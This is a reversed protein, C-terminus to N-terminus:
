AQQDILSEECQFGFSERAFRRCLRLDVCLDALDNGVERAGRFKLSPKLQNTEFGDAIRVEFLDDGLPDRDIFIKVEPKSREDDDGGLVLSLIIPVDKDGFKLSPVGTDDDGGM